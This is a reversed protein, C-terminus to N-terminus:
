RGESDPAVLTLAALEPPFIVLPSHVPKPCLAFCHSVPRSICVLPICSVLRHLVHFSVRPSASVLPSCSLRLSLYDAFRYPSILCLPCLSAHACLFLGCHRLALRFPRLLHRVRDSPRLSSCRFFIVLPQFPFGAGKM